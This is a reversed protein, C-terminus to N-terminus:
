EENQKGYISKWTNSVINKFPEKECRPIFDGFNPAYAKFNGCLPCFENYQEVLKDVTLDAFSNVGYNKNLVRDMGGCVACAYYGRSNLGIGCYNTVWCAKSYDTNNFKEDDIPADNFSSFYEVKNKTKFSAYDIVINRNNNKAIECLNRSHESIGNSVIQIVTEPSNSDAYKQLLEIITLFDKHLTPEGGLVNILKWKKNNMISESIFNEIDRVDMQEKTPAQACSRNCGACKLNCDYTIDIEIRKFDPRFTKRGFFVNANSLVEKNIITSICKEKLDRNDDRRKYDREYYYNIFDAQLPSKSM